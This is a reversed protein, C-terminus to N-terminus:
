KGICFRAFIESIVAENPTGGTLEELKASAELVEQSVQDMFSGEELAHAARKLAELAEICVRLQRDSVLSPVEGADEGGILPPLLVKKLRELGEGTKSSVRLEAWEAGKPRVDAKSQVFLWDKQGFKAKLHEPVGEAESIWVLLDAVAMVGLTREIGLSEIPEPNERIGATDIAILSAGGLDIEHELFDRTTGPQDFVIAKESGVLANFLSSKGSNPPGVLCVSRKQLLHRNSRYASIWSELEDIATNLGRLLGEKTLDGVEVDSFDLQSQLGVLLDLIQQRLTNSHRGLGQLKSQLALRVGMSHSSNLIRDLAEVRDLSIKQNALARRTFEGPEALRTERSVIYALIEEVIVPNGHCSIELVDEGTFTNPGKFFTVVAEDLLKGSNTKLISLKPSRDKLDKCGLSEALVLCEPGSVRILALAARGHPTSLACIRQDSIGISM